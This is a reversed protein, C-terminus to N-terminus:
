CKINGLHRHWSYNISMAGLWGLGSNSPIISGCCLSTASIYSRVM